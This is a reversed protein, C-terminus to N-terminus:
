PGMPTLLINEGISFSVLVCLLGARAERTALSTHGGYLFHM